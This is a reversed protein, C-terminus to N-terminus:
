PALRRLRLAAVTALLAIVAGATPVAVAARVADPGAAVGAFGTANAVLGAIAAGFAAGTQQMTAVSAAAADEDGPLAHGMIRQATFAWCGGIGAGILAITAVLVAVSDGPLAVATATLGVVMTLPGIVLMRGPWADVFGAVAIAALTWTLSAGAIVYGAALPDLGHLGQLFVPAYVQLPTFATLLLLALWLGVGTVTRPSFADSPLMRRTARRDLRLMAVVAVVAAAMLMLKVALGAAVGAVSLAGIALCVLAIRLGPVGPRERDETRVPPFALVAVLAIAFATASLTYFAGRWSAYAAFAGGILPGILVSVGWVSALLAFVRPWLREPFVNRVLVYATATLLGGGFGQVFRGGIIAAMSPALACVLTGAGFILAGATFSRKPGIVSVLLGTCSSAIISAAVFSTTPWAIQAAGGIERVISPLVTAVLLVNMSHLLVGGLLVAAAPIREPRLLEAWSAPAEDHNLSVM